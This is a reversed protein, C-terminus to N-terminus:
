ETNIRKHRAKKVEYLPKKTKNKNEQSEDMNCKKLNMWNKNSFLTEKYSYIMM